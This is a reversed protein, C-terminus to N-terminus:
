TDIAARTLLHARVLVHTQTTPTEGAGPALQVAIGADGVGTQMSTREEASEWRTM